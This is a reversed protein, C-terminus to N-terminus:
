VERVGEALTIDHLKMWREKRGELGHEALANRKLVRSPLEM